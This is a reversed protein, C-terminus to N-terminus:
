FPLGFGIQVVLRTLLAAACCHLVAMVGWGKGRGSSPLGLGSSFPMSILSYCRSCVCLCTDDFNNRIIQDVEEVHTVRTATDSRVIGYSLEM